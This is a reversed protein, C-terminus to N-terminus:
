WREYFMLIDFGKIIVFPDWFINWFLCLCWVAINDLALGVTKVPVMTLNSWRAIIVLKSM